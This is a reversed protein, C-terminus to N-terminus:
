DDVPTCISLLNTEQTLAEAQYGNNSAAIDWQRYRFPNSIFRPPVCRHRSDFHTMHPFLEIPLVSLVFCIAISHWCFLRLNLQLISNAELLKKKLKLSSEFQSKVPWFTQLYGLDPTRLLNMWSGIESKNEFQQFIKDANPFCPLFRFNKCSKSKRKMVPSFKTCFTGRQHVM